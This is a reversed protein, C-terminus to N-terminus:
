RDDGAAADTLGRLGVVAVPVAAVAVGPPGTQRALSTGLLGGGGRGDLWPRWCREAGAPVSAPPKKTRGRRERFHALRISQGGSQRTRPTSMSIVAAITFFSRSAVPTPIISHLAASASAPPLTSSAVVM